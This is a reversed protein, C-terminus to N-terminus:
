FDDILIKFKERFHVTKKRTDETNIVFAMGYDANTREKKLLNLEGFISLANIGKEDLKTKVLNIVKNHSEKDNAFNRIEKETYRCHINLFHNLLQLCSYYYCHISSNKQNNSVLIEASDFTKDSKEEFNNAAM